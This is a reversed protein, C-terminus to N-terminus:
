DVAAATGCGFSALAPDRRSGETSSVSYISYLKATQGKNDDGTTSLGTDVRVRSRASHLAYQLARDRRDHGLGATCRTARPQLTYSARQTRTRGHISAREHKRGREVRKKVLKVESGLDSGSGHWAAMRGLRTLWVRTRTTALLAVAPCLSRGYAVTTEALGGVCSNLAHREAPGAPSATSSCHPDLRASHRAATGSRLARWEPSKWAKQGVKNASTSGSM